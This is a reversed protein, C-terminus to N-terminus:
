EGEELEWITVKITGKFRRKCAPCVFSQEPFDEVLLGESYAVNLGCPCRDIFLCGDTEYWGTQETIDKM